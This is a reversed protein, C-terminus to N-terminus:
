FKGKYDSYKMKLNPLCAGSLYGSLHSQHGSLKKFELEKLFFKDNELNELIRMNGQKLVFNELYSLM